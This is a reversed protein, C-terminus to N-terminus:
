CKIMMKISCSHLQITEHFCFRNSLNERVLYKMHHERFVNRDSVFTRTGPGSKEIRVPLISDPLLFKKLLCEFSM